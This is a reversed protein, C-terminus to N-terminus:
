NPYQKVLKKLTRKNVKIAHNSRLEEIWQKEIQEQFDNIVLGRAESLKKESPELIKNVKVIIFHNNDEEFIKSVGEKLEFEKPLKKSGVDLL